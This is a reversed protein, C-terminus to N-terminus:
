ADASLHDLLRELGVGAGDPGCVSSTGAAQDPVLCFTSPLVTDGVFGATTVALGMSVVIVLARELM